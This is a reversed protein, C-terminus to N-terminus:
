TVPGNEKHRVKEIKTVAGLELSIQRLWTFLKEFVNTPYYYQDELIVLNANKMDQLVRNLSNTDLATEARLESLKLPGKEYLAKAVLMANKNSFKRLASWLDFSTEVVLKGVPETMSNEARRREGGAGPFETVCALFLLWITAFEKM